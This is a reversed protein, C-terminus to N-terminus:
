FDYLLYKLYVEHVEYGKGRVRSTEFNLIWRFIENSYSVAFLIGWGELLSAVRVERHIQM